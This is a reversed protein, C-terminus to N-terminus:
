VPKKGALFPAARVPKARVSFGLAWGGFRRCHERLEGYSRGTDLPSLTEHTRRLTHHYETRVRSLAIMSILTM